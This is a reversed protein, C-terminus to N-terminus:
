TGQGRDKRRLDFVGRARSVRDGAALLRQGLASSNRLGIGLSIVRVSPSSAYRPPTVTSYYRDQKIALNLLAEHGDDRQGRVVSEQMARDAAFLSYCFGLVGILVVLAIAKGGWGWVELNGDADHRNYYVDALLVNLSVVLLLPPSIIGLLFCPRNVSSRRHWPVDLYQSYRNSM